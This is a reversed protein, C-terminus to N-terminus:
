RQKARGKLETNKKADGKSIAGVGREREGIEGLAREGRRAETPLERQYGIRM